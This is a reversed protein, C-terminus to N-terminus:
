QKHHKCLANCAKQRAAIALLDERSAYGATFSKIAEQSTNNATPRYEAFKETCQWCNGLIAGEVDAEKEVNNQYKKNICNIQGHADTQKKHVAEHFLVLRAYGLPQKQLNNQNVFIQGACACGDVTNYYESTQALQKISVQKNHPIGIISQAEQGLAQYEQHAEQSGLSELTYQQQWHAPSDLEQGYMHIVLSYACIRLFRHWIKSFLTMFIWRWFFRYRNYEVLDSSKIM